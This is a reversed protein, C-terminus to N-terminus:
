RSREVDRSLSDAASMQAHTPIYALVHFVNWTRGKSPQFRQQIIIEPRNPLELHAEIM